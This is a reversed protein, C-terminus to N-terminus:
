YLSFMIDGLLSKSIIQAPLHFHILIEWQPDLIFRRQVGLVRKEIEHPNESFIPLFVFIQQNAGGAAPFRLDVM